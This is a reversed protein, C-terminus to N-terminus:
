EQLTASIGGCAVCAFQWLVPKQIEQEM